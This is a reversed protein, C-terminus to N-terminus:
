SECLPRCKTDCIEADILMEFPDIHAGKFAQCAAETAKVVTENTLEDGLFQDCLDLWKRDKPFLLYGDPLRDRVYLGLRSDGGELFENLAVM